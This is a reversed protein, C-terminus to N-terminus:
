SPAYLRGRKVLEVTEGRHQKFWKNVEALLKGLRQNRKSHNLGAIRCWARLPRKALPNALLALVLNQVAARM